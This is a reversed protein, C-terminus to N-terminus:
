DREGASQDAPAAQEEEEGPRAPMSIRPFGGRLRLVVAHTVSGLSVFTSSASASSVGAGERAGAFAAPSPFQIVTGGAASRLSPPSTPERMFGQAEGDGDSNSPRKM